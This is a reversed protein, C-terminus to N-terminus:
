SSILLLSFLPSRLKKVGSGPQSAGAGENIPSFPPCNKSPPPPTNQAGGPGQGGCAGDLWVTVWTGSPKHYLVVPDGFTNDFPSQGNAKTLRTFTLGGDTSVSAGSINIPTFNRGRSDNYAVVVQNPDDPNATTFTESQTVNPFSETGTILDVDTSGFAVPATLRQVLKSFARGHFSKGGESLGCFIMVAGARLNEQRDIGLRHIKSCDFGAPVLPDISSQTTVKYKQQAQAATPRVPNATAFLALSIGALAVFAGILFRPNFFASQSTSKKKM